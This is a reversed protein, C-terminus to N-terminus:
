NTDNHRSQAQCEACIGHICMSYGIPQFGSIDIAELYRQIGEEGVETIKGCRSCVLHCHRGSALEYRATRSTFLHRNVLGCEVLLEVTNYVTARSVHYGESEMLDYLDDIGFHDSLRMVRELIAFREPTKRLNRGELHRTFQERIYDRDPTSHM